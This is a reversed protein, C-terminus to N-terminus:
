SVPAPCVLLADAVRAGAEVRAGPGLVCATVHAGEGVSAGELLVSGEVHARREVRAGTALCCGPGIHAEPERQCGPALLRNRSRAGSSRLPSAGMAADRNAELYSERTGVDLWYCEGMPWALVRRGESLWRPILERELSVERGQPVEALLEPRVAYIAGNAHAPGGEPPKEVFASVRGAEDFRLVGFRRGDAVRRVAIALDADADAAFGLLSGLPADTLIDGNTALFRESLGRAALALFGGTGLPLGEELGVVPMCGGDALPWAPERRSTGVIARTAGARALGELVHELLPVNGVPLARKPLHATLPLLRTGRGGSIVVATGPM